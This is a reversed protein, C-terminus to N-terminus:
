VCNNMVWKQCAPTTFYIEILNKHIKERLLLLEKAKDIFTCKSDDM